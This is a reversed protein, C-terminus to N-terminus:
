PAKLYSADEVNKVGRFSVRKRITAREGRDGVIAAWGIDITVISLKGGAESVVLWEGERKVVSNREAIDPVM